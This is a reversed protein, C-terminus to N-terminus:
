RWDNCDEHREEANGHALDVGPAAATSFLLNRAVLRCIHADELSYRLLRLLALLSISWVMMASTLSAYSAPPVVPERGADAAIKPTM